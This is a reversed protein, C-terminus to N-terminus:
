SFPFIAFIYSLTVIVLGWFRVRFFEHVIPKLIRRALVNPLFHLSIALVFNRFAITPARAFPQRLVATIRRLVIDAARRYWASRIARFNGAAIATAVPNTWVRSWVIFQSMGIVTNQQQFFTSSSGRESLHEFYSNKEGCNTLLERCIKISEYKQLIRIQRFVFFSLAVKWWLLQHLESRTHDLGTLFAFFQPFNQLFTEIHEATM